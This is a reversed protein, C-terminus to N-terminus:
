PAAHMVLSRLPLPRSTSSLVAAIRRLHAADRRNHRWPIEDLYRDLHKPSIWHWVDIVARRIEAHVAEATNTHADIGSDGTDRQVFEGASHKVAIHARESVAKRYAPLADTSVVADAAIRNHSAGRISAISHSSIRRFVVPGGREVITLVLSRRHGRGSKM